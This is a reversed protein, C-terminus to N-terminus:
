RQEVDNSTCATTDSVVDEPIHQFLEARSKRPLTELIDAIDAPHLPVLLGRLRQPKEVLAAMIAEQRAETLEIHPKPETPIEQTM